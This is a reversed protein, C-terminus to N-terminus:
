DREEAGVEDDEGLVHLRLRMPCAGIAPPSAKRDFRVRGLCGPTM